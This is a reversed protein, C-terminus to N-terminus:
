KFCIMKLNSNYCIVSDDVYLVIHYNFNRFDLFMFLIYSYYYIIIIFM